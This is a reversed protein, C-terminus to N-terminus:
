CVTLALIPAFSAAIIMWYQQISWLGHLRLNKAWSMPSVSDKGRATCSCTDGLITPGQFFKRGDPLKVASYAELHPEFAALGNPQLGHAFMNIVVVIQVTLM